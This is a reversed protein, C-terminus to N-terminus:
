GVDTADALLDAPLTIGMRGAAASNVVLTLEEQTEVPMTAPDAGQTLIKVAMEGTQYGLKSYDIGYTVLAGNAVSDGEGAIIPIKKTEAVQIVADLGSVVTNDTPIYFADVDLGSAAQQVDASTTVSREVLTLGEAAAAERAAAVQVESNVEGSSYIIGVSKADPKVTKVLKVQDAVPNMDTTGTVNAGPAENSKVLQAAVPDTVATFLIPTQTIVQASAQATPTAIALVLDYGGANFTNAISTATAQDGQANKEDFTAKLGADTIAKKFGERSADLSPHAVIQTIGIKYTKAAASGSASAAPTATPTGTSCGALALATTAVLAALARVPSKKM